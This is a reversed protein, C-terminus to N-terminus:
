AGRGPGGPRAVASRSGKSSALFEQIRPCHEGRAAPHGHPCDPPAPAVTVRKKLNLAVTVRCGKDDERHTEVTGGLAKIIALGRGREAEWEATGTTNVRDPVFCPGPDHVTLELSDGDWHAEACFPGPAYRQVNGILEGVIQEVVQADSEAEAVDGVHTRIAARLRRLEHEHLRTDAQWCM